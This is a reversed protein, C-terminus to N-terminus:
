ELMFDQLATSVTAAEGEEELVRAEEEFIGAEADGQGVALFDVEVANLRAWAQPARLYLPNSARTQCVLQSVPSAPPFSPAFFIRTYEEVWEALRAPSVGEQVEAQIAKFSRTLNTSANPLPSALAPALLALSALLLAM